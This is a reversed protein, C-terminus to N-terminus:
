KLKRVEKIFDVGLAEEWSSIDGNLHFGSIGDSENILDKVNILMQRYKESKESEEKTRSMARKLANAPAQPVTRSRVLAKLERLHPNYYGGSAIIMGTFETNRVDAQRVVCHFNDWYDRGIAGRWGEYNRYSDCIVAIKVM